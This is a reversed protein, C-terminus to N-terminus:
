PVTGKADSTPPTVLLKAMVFEVHEYQLLGVAAFLGSGLLDQLHGQSVANQDLFVEGPELRYDEDPLNTTARGMPEGTAADRMAVAVRGTDAYRGWLVDCLRGAYMIQM